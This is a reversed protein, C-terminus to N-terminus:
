TMGSESAPLYMNFTHLSYSVKGLVNQTHVQFSPMNTGLGLYVVGITLYQEEMYFCVRVTKLLEIWLLCRDEPFLGPM